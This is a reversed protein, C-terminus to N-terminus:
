KALMKIAAELSLRENPQNKKMLCGLEIIPDYSFTAASHKFMYGISYINTCIRQKSHLVNRLEHAIHRHDQNYVRHEKSDPLINYIVPCNIM